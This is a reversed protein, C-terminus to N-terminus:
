RKLLQCVDKEEMDKIDKQLMQIRVDGWLAAYRQALRFSTVTADQDLAVILPRPAYEAIESAKNLGVGTGLLAVSNVYESARVASPIDEVLVTGKDAHTKYWSLSEEDEDLYMLAKLASRGQIDRLVWGRHTYKPSRISMALRGGYDKTWYWYEADTVGWMNFLRERLSDSLPVTVGDFTKRVKKEPKLSPLGSGGKYITSGKSGCSARHCVYVLGGSDDRTIVLSKESSTGGGCLPCIERISEGLSLEAGYLKVESKISM